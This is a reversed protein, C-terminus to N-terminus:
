VPIFRGSASDHRVQNRALIERSQAPALLMSGPLVFLRGGGQHL